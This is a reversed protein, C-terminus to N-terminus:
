PVDPPLKDSWWPDTFLATGTWWGADDWQTSSIDDGDEPTAPFPTHSTTMGTSRAYNNVATGSGSGVVRGTISTALVDTNLAVCNTVICGSGNFGVIGGADFVTATVSGTSYCNQVVTGDNFGVVGGAFDNGSINGTSYCKEV